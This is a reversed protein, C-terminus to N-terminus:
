DIVAGTMLQIADTAVIAFGRAGDARLQTSPDIVVTSAVIAKLEGAPTAITVTDVPIPTAGRFLSGTNTDFTRRGSLELPQTPPLTCTDLQQSFSACGPIASGDPAAPPDAPHFTCGAAFVLAATSRM